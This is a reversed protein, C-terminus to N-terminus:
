IWGNQVGMLVIQQVYESFSMRNFKAKENILMFGETSIRVTTQVFDGTMEPLDSNVSAVVAGKQDLQTRLQNREMWLNYVNGVLADASPIKVNFIERFRKVDEGVVVFAEPDTMVGLLAAVSVDLKQGFRKGLMEILGTPIKIIFPEVGAQVKPPAKPLPMKKPNSALFEETDSFIHAANESCYLGFKGASQMLRVEKGAALCSPCAFETLM